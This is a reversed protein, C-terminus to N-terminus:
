THMDSNEYASFKVLITKIIIGLIYLNQIMCQCFIQRSLLDSGCEEQFSFKKPPGPRINLISGLVVPGM